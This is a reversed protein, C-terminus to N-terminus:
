GISVVEFGLDEIEERLVADSVDNGEVVACKKTLDVNATLGMGELAKIVRASCKECHMGEIQIIKKMFIVTAKATAFAGKRSM